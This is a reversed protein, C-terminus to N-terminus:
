EMNAYEYLQGSAIYFRRAIPLGDKKEKQSIGGPIRPVLSWFFLPIDSFM